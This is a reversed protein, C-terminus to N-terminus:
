HNKTIGSFLKTWHTVTSTPLSWRKAPNSPLAATKRAKFCVYQVLAWPNEQTFWSCSQSHLASLEKGLIPQHLDKCQHSYIHKRNKMTKRVPFKKASVNKDGFHRKFMYSRNDISFHIANKFTVVYRLTDPQLGKKRDTPFVFHKGTMSFILWKTNLIHTFLILEYGWENRCESLQLFCSYSLSNSFTPSNRTIM